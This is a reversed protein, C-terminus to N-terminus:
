PTTPPLDICFVGGWPIEYSFMAQMPQGLIQAALARIPGHHSVIVVNGFSGKGSSGEILDARLEGVRTWLMRLSEGNGPAYDVMDSSWQDICARPIDCWPQGEWTGFDLELLREDTQVEIQDRQGIAQALGRCRISPSTIVTTAVPIRGLCQEFELPWTSALGLDSRGYCIAADIAPQTHRVLVLRATLPGGHLRSLLRM